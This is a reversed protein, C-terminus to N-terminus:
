PLPLHATEWFRIIIEIYAPDATLGVNYKNHCGRLLPSHPYPFPFCQTQWNNNLYMIIGTLIPLLMIQLTNAMFVVPSIEFNNYTIECAM